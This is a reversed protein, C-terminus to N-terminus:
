ESHAPESDTTETQQAELMAELKESALPEKSFSLGSTRNKLVPHIEAV